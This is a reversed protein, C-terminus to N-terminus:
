SLLNANFSYGFLGAAVGSTVGALAADSYVGAADVPLV